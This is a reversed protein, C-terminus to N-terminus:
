YKFGFVYSSTSAAVVLPDRALYTILSASADNVERSPLYSLRVSSASRVCWPWEPQNQINGELPDHTLKQTAKDRWRAPMKKLFSGYYLRTSPLTRSLVLLKDLRVFSDDDTKFVRAKRPCSTAVWAFFLTVKRVLNKYADHTDLFVMDGHQSAEVRMSDPVHGSDNLALLFRVTVSGAPAVPFKMWTDRIVKRAETSRPTPSALVGVVLEVGPGGCGASGFVGREQVNHEEAGLGVDADGHGDEAPVAVPERESDAPRAPARRATDAPPCPRQAASPHSLTGLPTRHAALLILVGSAVALVLAGILLVERAKM